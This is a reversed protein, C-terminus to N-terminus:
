QAGGGLEEMAKKADGIFQEVTEKTRASTL